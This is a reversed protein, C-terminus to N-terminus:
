AIKTLRISNKYKTRCRAFKWILNNRIQNLITNPSMLYRFNDLMTFLTVLVNWARIFGKFISAIEM